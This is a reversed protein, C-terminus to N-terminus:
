QYRWSLNYLYLKQYCGFVVKDYKNNFSVCRPRTQIDSILLRLFKGDRSVQYICSINYCCVYINGDCDVNIGETDKLKAHTYEFVPSGETTVCYITKGSNVTYCITLDDRLSLSRVEGKVKIDWLHIHGSGLVIIRDKSGIYYTGDHYDFDFSCEVTMQKEEVLRNDSLTFFRFCKHMSKGRITVAGTIENIMRLGYPTGPLSLSSLVNLDLDLLDVTQNGYNSILIQNECLFSAGMIVNDFSKEKFIRPEVTLMDVSPISRAGNEGIQKREIEVKGLTPVSKSFNLFEQNSNFNMRINTMKKGLELIFKEIDAKQANLNTFDQLLQADCGHQKSTQLLMQNNRIACTKGRIDDIWNQIEPTVEKEVARIEELANNKMSEFHNSAINYLKLITNKIESTESEIGRSNEVRDKEMNALTESM